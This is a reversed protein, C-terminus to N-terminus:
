KGKRFLRAMAEARAADFADTAVDLAREYDDLLANYMDYAAELAATIAPAHVARVARVARVALAARAADRAAFAIALAARAALIATVAAVVAPDANVKVQQEDVQAQQEPTLGRFDTM